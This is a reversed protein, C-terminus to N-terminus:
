KVLMIKQIKNFQLTNGEDYANMRIFYIGSAHDSGDWVTEYYGSATFGSALISVEQGLIDYVSIKIHMDIPVAYHINTSPNFPNPYAPSLKFDNPVPIYEFASSSTSGISKQNAINAGNM